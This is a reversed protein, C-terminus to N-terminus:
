SLFTRAVHSVLSWRVPPWLLRLALAVSLIFIVETIFPSLTPYSGVLLQPLM